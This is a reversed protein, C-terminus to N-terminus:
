HQPIGGRLCIRGCLSRADVGQGPLGITRLHGASLPCRSLFPRLEGNIGGPRLGAAPLKEGTGCPRVRVRKSPVTVHLSKGGNNREGDGNGRLARGCL